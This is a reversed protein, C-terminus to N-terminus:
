KEPFLIALVGCLGAGVYAVATVTDSTLHLNLASNIAAFAGIWSSPERLRDLGYRALHRAQDSLQSM